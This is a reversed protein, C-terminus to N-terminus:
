EPLHMKRQPLLRDHQRAHVVDLAFPVGDDPLQGDVVRDVVDEGVRHIGAGIHETSRPAPHGNLIAALADHSSEAFVSRVPVDQKEVMM